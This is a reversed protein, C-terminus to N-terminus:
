EHAFSVTKLATGAKIAQEIIAGYDFEETRAEDTKPKGIYATGMTAIQHADTPLKAEALAIPRQVTELALIENQSALVYLTETGKAEDLQFGRDYGPLWYDKGPKVPNLRSATGKQPFLVLWQGDSSKQLVYVYCPQSARYFIQYPNQGTRLVTRGSSDIQRMRGSDGDLYLFQAVLNVQAKETKSEQVRTVAKPKEVKVAEKTEGIKAIEVRRNRAHSAEDDGEAIIQTKGYGKTRLHSEPIRFHTVLYSKVAQARKLSLNQNYEASGRIDTHGSIEFAYGSLGPSSLAEGLEALQPTAAEVIESSNYDFPISGHVGGDVSGARDTGFVLKTSGSRAGMTRIEDDPAHSEGGGLIRIIEEKGLVHKKHDDGCNGHSPFLLLTLLYIMVCTLPMRYAKQFCYFM